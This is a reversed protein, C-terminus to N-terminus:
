PVAAAASKPRSHRLCNPRAFHSSARARVVWKLRADASQTPRTLEATYLWELWGGQCKLVLLQTPRPYGNFGGAALVQV